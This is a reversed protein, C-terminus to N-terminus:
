IIPDIIIKWKNIVELPIYKIIDNDISHLIQKVNQIDKKDPLLNKNDEIMKSYKSFLFILKAYFLNCVSEIPYFIENTAEYQAGYCGRMCYDAIPCSDCKMRGKYSAGHVATLLPLNKAQIGVIKDDEVQFTGFIFQNYSTRHCPTWSLDGLRVCAFREIGCNAGKTQPFLSWILYNHMNTNLGFAVQLFLELNNNFVEELCFDIIDNLFNLYCIIKEETWEDNRVELSLFKNMFEREDRADCNIKVNNIWWKYQETWDEISNANVMPHFGYGYKRCFTFMKKYFDDTEKMKTDNSNKCPRNKEDLIAGDNSCSFMIFTKYLGYEYIYKEIKQTQNDNLVFWMNSPIVIIKPKVPAIKIYDNLFIDLIELGFSTHWIEGTFFDFKRPYIKQEILFSLLIKFNNIILNHDRYEKPYIKDENQVLYCYECRQNCASTIYLELSNEEYRPSNPNFFEKFVNLLLKNNEQEYIQENILSYKM